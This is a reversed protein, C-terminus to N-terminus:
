RRRRRRKAKAKPAPKAKILEETKVIKHAVSAFIVSVLITMFVVGLVLDPDPFESAFYLALVVCTMGRPGVLFIFKDRAKWNLEFGWAAPARSLVILIAFIIGAIGASLLVGLNLMSGLIVYIFVVVLFAISTQFSAVIKKLKSQPANGFIVGAVFVAFIGSAGIFQSVAYILLIAGISLIEPMQEVTKIHKLMFVFMYGFVVGLGIGVFIQYLFTQTVAYLTGQGEIALGTVVTAIIIAFVSNMTAELSLVDKLQPRIEFVKLLPAIITLDTSAIIAGLLLAMQWTFDFMFMSVAMATIISLIVAPITLRLSPGLEKKLRGVKIEYGADFLVIILAFTVISQILGSYEAPNFLHLVPGIIIGLLILVLIHPFKIKQSLRSVIVGLIIIAGIIGIGITPDTM